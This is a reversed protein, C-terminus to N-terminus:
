PPTEVAPAQARLEDIYKHIKATVEENTALFFEYKKLDFQLFGRQEGSSQRMFGEIGSIIQKLFNRDVECAHLDAKAEDLTSKYDTM